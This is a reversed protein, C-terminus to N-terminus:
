RVRELPRKGLKKLVAGRFRRWPFDSVQEAQLGIEPPLPLKRIWHRAQDIAEDVFDSFALGAPDITANLDLSSEILHRYPPYSWLYFELTAPLRMERVAAEIEAYADSPASWAPRNLQVTLPKAEKETEVDGISELLERLVGEGLLAALRQLTAAHAGLLYILFEVLRV